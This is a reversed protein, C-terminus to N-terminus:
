QNLDRKKAYINYVKRMPDDPDKSIYQIPNKGLIDTHNVNPHKGLIENLLVINNSFVAHHLPTQDNNDAIDVKAGKDLLCKINQMCSLKEKNTQALQYSKLSLLLPTEGNKNQGNIDAPSDKLIKLICERSYPNNTQALKQLFEEAKAKDKTVAGNDNCLYYYLKILAKELSSGKTELDKVGFYKINKFEKQLNNIDTINLSLSDIDKIGAFNYATILSNLNLNYFDSDSDCNNWYDKPMLGMKDKVELCAYSDILWKIAQINKQIFAHHLATQGNEDCLDVAAGNAILYNIKQADNNKVAEILPTSLSKNCTNLSFGMNHIKEMILTAQKTKNYKTSLLFANNGDEDSYFKDQINRELMKLCLLDNRNKVALMFPSLCNKNKTNLDAGNAIANEFYTMQELIPLKESAILHLITNKQSDEYSASIDPSNAIEWLSLYNEKGTTKIDKINKLEPFLFTPINIKNTHEDFKFNDFSNKCLLNTLRDESLMSPIQSCRTKVYKQTNKNKSNFLLFMNTSIPAQYLNKFIDSDKEPGSQVFPDIDERKLAENFIYGKNLASLVYLPTCYTASEFRELLLARPVAILDNDNWRENLNFNKNKVLALLIEDHKKDEENFGWRFSDTWYAFLKALKSPNNCNEIESLVPENEKFHEPPEMDDLKISIEKPATYNFGIKINKNKIDNNVDEIFIEIPDAESLLKNHRPLKKSSINWINNNWNKHVNENISSIDNFCNNLKSNINEGILKRSTLSYSNFVNSNQASGIFFGSKNIDKVNGNFVCDNIDSWDSQGIFGGIIDDASIKANVNTESIQSNEGIGYIGGFFKSSTTNKKKSVFFDDDDDDDEENNILEPKVIGSFKSGNVTTHKAFGVLGGVVNKGKVEGDFSTNDIVTKNESSGIIGGVDSKGIIQANEIKLNKIQADNCTRFFGVSNSDKKNINLNKVSFGNGDFTGTYAKKLNGIGQFDQSKLDIDMCLVYNKNWANESKSLAVMDQANKLIISNGNNCLEGKSNIQAVEYGMNLLKSLSSHLNGKFSINNYAILNSNKVKTTNIPTLCNNSKFNTASCNRMKKNSYNYSNKISLIEM